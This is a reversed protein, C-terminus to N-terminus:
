DERAGTGCQDQQWTRTAFSAISPRGHSKSGRSTAQSQTAACLQANSRCLSDPAPASSRLAQGLSGATGLPQWFAGNRSATLGAFTLAIRMSCGIAWPRGVDAQEVWAILKKVLCRWCLLCWNVKLPVSVLEKGRRRRWSGSTLRCQRSNGCSTGPGFAMQGRGCRQLKWAAHENSTAWTRTRQSM